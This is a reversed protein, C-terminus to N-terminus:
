DVVRCTFIVAVNGRKMSQHVAFSRGAAGLAPLGGLTERSVHALVRGSRPDCVQVANPDHPNDPEPVLKVYDCAVLARAHEGPEAEVFRMGVATFEFFVNTM